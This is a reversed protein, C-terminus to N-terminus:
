AIASPFKARRIECGVPQIKTCRSQKQFLLKLGSVKQDAMTETPRRTHRHGILQGNAPDDDDSRRAVSVMQGFQQFRHIGADHSDSLAGNGDSVPRIGNQSLRQVVKSAMIQPSGHLPHGFREKNEMRRRVLGNPEVVREDVASKAGFDRGRGRGVPRQYAQRIGIMQKRGAVGVASEYSLNRITPAASRGFAPRRLKLSPRLDALVPTFGLPM